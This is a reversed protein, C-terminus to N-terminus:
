PDSQISSSADVSHNSLGGAKSPKWSDHDRSVKKPRALAAAKRGAPAAVQEIAPDHEKPVARKTLSSSQTGHQNIESTPMGELGNSSLPQLARPLSARLEQYAAELRTREDQYAQVSSELQQNSSELQALRRGDDM